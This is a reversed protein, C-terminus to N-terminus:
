YNSSISKCYFIKNINRCLQINISFAGQKTELVQLEAQREDPLLKLSTQIIFFSISNISARTAQTHPSTKILSEM